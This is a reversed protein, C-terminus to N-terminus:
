TFFESVPCTFGPLVDGGDITGDAKILRSKKATRYVKVAQEKPDVIWVLRSGGDFYEDLKEAIKKPTNSKSLVEVCLDPSGEVWGGIKKGLPVREKSLFSVDPGRVSDPNRETIIGGEVAVRGIPHKHLYLKIAFCINAAIEGHRYNPPPMIIVKGRVLEQRSGDEPDPMLMFEEATILKTAVTAM